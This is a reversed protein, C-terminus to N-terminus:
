GDKRGKFQELIARRARSLNQYVADTSMQIVSAIEEVEMGEIHKMRLVMQQKDPLGDILALIVRVRDDDMVGGDSVDVNLPVVRHRQHIRLVNLSLRKVVVRALAEVSHYTDLKDRMAYLKLLAEQVVDEAMDDDGLYGRAVSVLMRRCRCVFIEFEKDVM